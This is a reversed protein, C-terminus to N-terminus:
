DALAPIKRRSNTRLDNKGFGCFFTGYSIFTAHKTQSSSNRQQFEAPQLNYSHVIEVTTDSQSRQSRGPNSIPTVEESLLFPQLLRNKEQRKMRDRCIATSPMSLDRPLAMM